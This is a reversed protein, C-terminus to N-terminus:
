ISDIYDQIIDNFAVRKDYLSEAIFLMSVTRTSYNDVSRLSWFTGNFFGNQTINPTVLVTGNKIVEYSASQRRDLHYFGISNSNAIFNVTSNHFRTAMDNSPNRTNIFLRTSIAATETNSDTIIASSGEAKNILEYGGASFDDANDVLSVPNYNLSLYANTGNGTFGENPDYTLGGFRDAETLRKWDICAFDNDGGSALVYFSKLKSWIGESVLDTVLTNQLSQVASSPLTYGEAVAYDLVDQYQQIFGPEGGAGRLFMRRRM